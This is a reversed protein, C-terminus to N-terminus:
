ENRTVQQYEQDAFCALKDYTNVLEMNDNVSREVKKITSISKLFYDSIIKLRNESYSESLYQGFLTLAKSKLRFYTKIISFSPIKFIFYYRVNVGLLDQVFKRM